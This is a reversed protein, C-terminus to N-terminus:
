NFINERPFLRKLSEQLQHHPYIDAKKSWAYDLTQQYSWEPNKYFCYAVGISGSRGIGARCNLLVKQKGQQLQRDIWSIAEKIATDGIPHQAGDLLPLHKYAIDTNASFDLLFEGALNLVADFGHEAANSAAIFNGVYVHPMVEIYNARQTWITEPLPSEINLYGNEQWDGAWQWREPQQKLGVRYTFQYSGPSTPTFSGQFKYIQEAEQPHYALDVFHWNGESNFKNLANTWLQVQLDEPAYNSSLKVSAGFSELMYLTLHSNVAPQLERFQM